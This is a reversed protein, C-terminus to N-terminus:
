NQTKNSTELYLSAIFVIHTIISHMKIDNLFNLLWGHAQSASNLSHISLFMGYMGCMGIDWNTEREYGSVDSNFPLLHFEDM